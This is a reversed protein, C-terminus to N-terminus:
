NGFHEQWAKRFEDQREKILRKLEAVQHSNLGAVDATEITPELWFKAEGENCSAHIHPRSEERSFFFLRYQEYRLVTPSM